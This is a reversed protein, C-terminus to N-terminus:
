VGTNSQQTTYYWYGGGIVLAIGLGFATYKYMKASKELEAEKKAAAEKEAKLTNIQNTLETIREQIQLLAQQAEPSITGTTVETSIDNGDVSVDEIDEVDAVDAITEDEVYPDVNGGGAYVMQEQGTTVEGTSVPPVIRLKNLDIQSASGDTISKQGSAIQELRQVLWPPLDGEKLDKFIQFLQSWALKTMAGQVSEIGQKLAKNTYEAIKHWKLNTTVQPMSLALALFYLVFSSLESENMDPIGYKNDFEAARRPTLGIADAIKKFKPSTFIMESFTNATPAPITPSKHGFNAYSSGISDVTPFRSKM